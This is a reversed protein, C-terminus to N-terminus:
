IGCAATPLWEFQQRMAIQDPHRGEIRIPATDDGCRLILGGSNPIGFVALRDALRKMMFPRYNGDRKTGIPPAQSMSVPFGIPSGM